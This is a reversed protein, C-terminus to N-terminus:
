DDFGIAALMGFWPFVVASILKQSPCVPTHQAEPIGFNEAVAGAHQLCDGFRQPGPRRYVGV